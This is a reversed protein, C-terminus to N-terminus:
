WDQDQAYYDHHGHHDRHEHDQDQHHFFHHFGRHHLFRRFFVRRCFRHGLHSVCQHWNFRRPKGCNKNDESGYLHNPREEKSNEENESLKKLEGNTTNAQNFGDKASKVTYNIAKEKHEEPIMADSDVTQNAAAELDTMAQKDAIIPVNAEPANRDSSKTPAEKGKNEGQDKKEGKEDINVLIKELLYEMSSIALEVGKEDDAAAAKEAEKAALKLSDAVERTVWRDHAEALTAAIQSAKDAKKVAEELDGDKTLDSGRLIWETLEILLKAEAMEGEDLDGGKQPKASSKNPAAFACVAFLLFLFRM